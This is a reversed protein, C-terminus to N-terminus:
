TTILALGIALATFSTHCPPPQPPNLPSSGTPLCLPKAAPAGSPIVMYCTDPNINHIGINNAKKAQKMIKTLQQQIVHGTYIFQIHFSSIITDKLNNDQCKGPSFLPFV